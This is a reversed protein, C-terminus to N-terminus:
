RCSKRYAEKWEPLREKVALLDEEEEKVRPVAGKELQLSIKKQQLSLPNKNKEYAKGYCAAAEGFSFLGAYATGMNHFINGALIGETEPFALLRKYELIAAHYRKKQLLRDARIKKCEAESKNEFDTLIRKIRDTEEQTCYDCGSILTLVFEPLGKNEAKQQDLRGALDPLKLETRIWDIFDEDMFSDEILDTNEILCYCLEELSYVNLAVSDIYYPVFALEHSCLLLEGM